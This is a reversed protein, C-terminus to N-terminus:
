EVSFEHVMGQTFHPPGDDEGGVPVFCVMAYDGATLQALTSGGSSGPPAFAFGAFEVMDESEEESLELIEDFSLDVGDAKRVIIMEHEESESDNTFSFAVSGADLSAPVGEFAYDVATVDVSEFECADVAGDVLESYTEFTADASFDEADGELLAQVSPNLEEATDKLEEPANDTVTQFLPAVEEGFAIIEEETSDDAGVDSALAIGNFEVIADCFAAGDGEAPAGAETTDTTEDDDDGCAAIGGLLALAIAGAGVRQLTRM